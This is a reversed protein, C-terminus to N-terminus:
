VEEILKLGYQKLVQYLGESLSIIQDETTTAHYVHSVSHILEHLLTEEISSSTRPSGDSILTAVRMHKKQHHTDGSNTMDDDVTCSKTLEISYWHGGIQVTDLTKYM